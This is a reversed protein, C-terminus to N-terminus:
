VKPIAYMLKKPWSLLAVMVSGEPIGTAVTIPKLPKPIARAAIHTASAHGGRSRQLSRGWAVAEMEFSGHKGPGVFKSEM